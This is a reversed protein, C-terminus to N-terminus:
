SKVGLARAAAEKALADVQPGAERIAKEREARIAAVAEGATRSAEDQAKALRDTRQQVGERVVATLRDYAQREVVAMKAAYDAELQGRTSKASVIEGESRKWDDKRQDMVDGVPKWLLSRLVLYLLWFGGMQILVVFPNIGLAKALDRLIDM